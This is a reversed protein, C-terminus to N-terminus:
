TEQLPNAPSTHSHVPLPRQDPSSLRHAPKKVDNTIPVVFYPRTERVDGTVDPGIRPFALFGAAVARRDTAADWQGTEPLHHERQFTKTSTETAADWEGTQPVGRYAQWQVIISRTM